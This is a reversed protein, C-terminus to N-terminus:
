VRVRRPSAMAKVADLRFLRWADVWAAELGRCSSLVFSEWSADDLGGGAAASTAAAAAAGGGGAATAPEGLSPWRQPLADVVMLRCSCGCLPGLSPGRIDSSPGGVLLEGMLGGPRGSALLHGAQLRLM